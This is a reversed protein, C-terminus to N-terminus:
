QAGLREGVVHEAGVGHGRGHPQQHGPLHERGDRAREERHQEPQNVRRWSGGAGKVAGAAAIMGATTTAPTIRITTAAAAMCSAVRRTTRTGAWIVDEITAITHSRSTSPGTSRGPTTSRRTISRRYVGPRRLRSGCLGSCWGRRARRRRPDVRRRRCLNAGLRDDAGSAGARRARVLLGHEQDHTGGQSLEVMRHLDRALPLGTPDPASLFGSRCATRILLRPCLLGNANRRFAPRSDLGRCSLAARARHGRGGPPSESAAIIPRGVVIYSAGASVAEAPGMTRSQDNKESGASAGRIGPTVVLFGGGCRARIAATELPSAVVGDLGASQAM